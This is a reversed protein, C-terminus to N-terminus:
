KEVSEMKVHSLLVYVSPEFNFPVDPLYDATLLESTDDVPLDKYIALIEMKRLDVSTLTYATKNPTITVPSGNDYSLSHSVSNYTLLASKNTLDPNVFNTISVGTINSPQTMAFLEFRDLILGDIKKIAHYLENKNAINTSNWEQIFGDTISRIEDEVESKSREIMSYYVEPVLAVKVPAKIIYTFGVSLYGPNNTTGDGMLKQRVTDILSTSANGQYDSVTITIIGDLPDNKSVSAKVVEEISESALKISTETGSQLSAWFGKLRARYAEDSEDSVAFIRHLNTVLEVGKKPTLFQNITGAETTFESGVGTSEVSVSALGDVGIVVTEMVRYTKSGATVIDDVNISTGEEGYVLITDSAKSATKRPMKLFAGIRDLDDGVATDIFSATELQEFTLYIDSLELGFAAFFRYLVAGVNMDTVINQNTIFDSFLDLLIENFTKIKLTM